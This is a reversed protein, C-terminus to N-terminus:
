CDDCGLQKAPCVHMNTISIIISIFGHANGQSVIPKSYNLFGNKKKLEQIIDYDAQNSEWQVTFM